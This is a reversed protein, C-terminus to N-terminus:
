NLFTCILSISQEPTRRTASLEALSAAFSAMAKSLDAQDAKRADIPVRYLVPEDASGAAHITAAFGKKSAEFRVNEAIDSPMQAIASSTWRQAWGCLDGAKAAQSLAVELEEAVRDVAVNQASAPTKAKPTAKDDQGQGDFMNRLSFEAQVTRLMLDTDDLGLHREAQSDDLTGRRRAWNELAAPHSERPLGAMDKDIRRCIDRTDIPIIKGAKRGEAYGDLNLTFWSDEFSANHALFPHSSLLRILREQLKKDKRFPTKGALKEANIHHIRELPVPHGDWASPLGCWVAEGKDPIADPSLEMLEWGANIIYGRDPNRGTTELDIGIVTGKVPADVYAAALNEMSSGVVRSIKSVPRQQLAAVSRVLDKDSLWRALNQGTSSQIRAALSTAEPKDSTCILDCLARNRDALERVLDFSFAEAGKPAAFWEERLVRIAEETKEREAEVASIGDALLFEPIFLSSALEIAQSSNM